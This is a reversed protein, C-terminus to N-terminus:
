KRVAKGCSSCFKDDGELKQGCQGCFKSKTASSTEASNVILKEGSEKIAKLQSDILSNKRDAIENDITAISKNLSYFAALEILRAPFNVEASPADGNSSSAGNAITVGALEARIFRTKAERIVEGDNGVILKGDRIIQLNIACDVKILVEDNSWDMELLKSDALKDAFKNNGGKIKSIGDALIAAIGPADKKNFLKTVKLSTVTAKVKYPAEGELLVTFRGSNNLLNELGPRVLKALSVGGEVNAALQDDLVVVPSSVNLTETVGPPRPPFAVPNANTVVTVKEKAGPGALPPSMQSLVIFFLSITITKFNSSSNM